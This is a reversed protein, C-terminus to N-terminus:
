EKDLTCCPKQGAVVRERGTLADTTLGTATAAGANAGALGVRKSTGTEFLPARM